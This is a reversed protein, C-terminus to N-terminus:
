GEIRGLGKKTNLYFWFKGNQCSGNGRGGNRKRHNGRKKEPPHIQIVGERGGKGMEGAWEMGCGWFGFHVKNIFGGPLLEWEGFFFVDAFHFVGLNSIGVYM